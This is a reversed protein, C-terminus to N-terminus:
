SDPGNGVVTSPDGDSVFRTRSRDLQDLTRRPDDGQVQVRPLAFPDFEPDHPSRAPGGAVRLIVDHQYDVRRGTVPDTWSGRRALVRNRPWIGLPLSLSRIGYGPVASDVALQLRAIQEQVQEDTLRSLTAHWLTHNCLEFGREVLFAVKRQRWETKQGEIGKNGFFSRGAEAGSLLCFVARNRWGPHTRAFDLWVGVASAPDIALEGNQELYRFQGPSADDFTIVVPSTGAPLRFSREALEQLSVPRYGRSWLLELDARLREPTVTWRSNEAGILHYELVLVRGLENAPLDTRPGVDAAASTDAPVPGPAVAPASDAGAAAQRGTAERAHEQTACAAGALLMLLVGAGRMM